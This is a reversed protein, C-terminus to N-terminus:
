EKDGEEEEFINENDLEESAEIPINNLYNYVEIACDTCLDFKRLHENGAGLVRVGFIRVGVYSPREGVEDTIVYFKKCRDCRMAEM